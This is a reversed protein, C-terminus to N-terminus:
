PGAISLSQGNRDLTTAAAGLQSRFPQVAFLMELTCPVGSTSVSPSSHRFEDCDSVAIAFAVVTGFWGNSLCCVSMVRQQSTPSDDHTDRARRHLHAIVIGGM